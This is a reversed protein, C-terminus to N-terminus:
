GKPKNISIDPALITASGSGTHSTGSADLLELIKALSEHIEQIPPRDCPNISICPAIISRIQTNITCEPYFDTETLKTQIWDVMHEVTRVPDIDFKIFRSFHFVGNEYGLNKFFRFSELFLLGFSFIDAAYTLPCGYVEYDIKRATQIFEPPIYTSRLKSFQQGNRHIDVWGSPMCSGYDSLKATADPFILVNTLKLDFHCLGLKHLRAIDHTVQYLNKLLQNRKMRDNHSTLHNSITRLNSRAHPLLMVSKLYREKRSAVSRNGWYISFPIKQNWMYEYLKAEKFNETIIQLTEVGSIHDNLLQKKAVLNSEWLDARRITGYSGHGCTYKRKHASRYTLFRNQLCNRGNIKVVPSFVDQILVQTISDMLNVDVGMKQKTAQTLYYAFIMMKKDCLQVDNAISVSLVAILDRATPTVDTEYHHNVWFPPPTDFFEANATIKGLYHSPSNAVELNGVAGSESSQQDAASSVLGVHSDGSDHTHSLFLHPPRLHSNLIRIPCPSQVDTLPLRRNIPTLQLHTSNM